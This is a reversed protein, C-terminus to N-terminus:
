TVGNTLIDALDADASLKSATGLNLQRYTKGNAGLYEGTAPDYMAASTRIEREGSNSSPVVNYAYPSDGPPGVESTDPPNIGEPVYDDAACEAPSAARRGPYEMCPLNRAGRVTTQSDKPVKCYIGNMLPPVSLDAPSRRQDAPLFGTTCPPTENIQLNFDVKIEGTDKAGNIATILSSVLAPYIVLLQEISRNYVVGVEGVSVLNAVLVPMTPQLDNLVRTARALSDPGRQIISTLQPENVRLQDTLDALNRTWARISDASRLQSDLVPEADAILQRTAGTNRQAEELLLQASDLFQQLERESGNFADFSESIVRRMKGDDISAMLVTAQDLVPGIGQPMDVRDEGLVTGDAMEGVPEGEPVLEVFQEGVASVSRIQARVNEPVEARTDFHLEAVVHGPKLTVADVRGIVNGLYSVNANKYVGGTDPMQLAVDTRQWGFATPLKLYSVSMVSLALVTVVAFITLQIRVFRTM